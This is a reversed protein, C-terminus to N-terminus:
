RGVPTSRHCYYLAEDRRWQRALVVPVCCSLHGRQSSLAVASNTQNFCRCPLCGGAPTTPAIPVALLLLPMQGHRRPQVTCVNGLIQRLEITCRCCCYWGLVRPHTETCTLQLATNAAAFGQRNPCPRSHPGSNLKAHITTISKATSTHHPETLHQHAETSSAREKEVEREREGLDQDVYMCLLLTQLCPMTSCAAARPEYM